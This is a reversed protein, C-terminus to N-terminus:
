GKPKATYVGSPTALQVPEISLKEGAEWIALPSPVSTSHEITVAKTQFNCTVRKVGPIKSMAQIAPVSEKACCMKKVTLVSVPGTPAAPAPIPQQAQSEVAFVILALMMSVSAISLRIM